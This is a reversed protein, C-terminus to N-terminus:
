LAILHEESESREVGPEKGDRGAFARSAKQMPPRFPDRGVTLDVESVPQVGILFPKIKHWGQELSTRNQAV